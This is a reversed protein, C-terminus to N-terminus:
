QRAARKRRRHERDQERIWRPVLFPPMPMGWLHFLIMVVAIPLVLGPIGVIILGFEEPAGLSEAFANIGLGSLLLLFMPIIYLLTVRLYVQRPWAASPSPMLIWKIWVILMGLCALGGILEWVKM